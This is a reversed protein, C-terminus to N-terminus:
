VVGAVHSHDLVVLDADTRSGCGWGRRGLWTRWIVRYQHSSPSLILAGRYGTLALRAMFTGVGRGDNLPSEPGGGSFGIYGLSVGADPLDLLMECIDTHAPDVHWAYSRGSEVAMHADLVCHVLPLADGGANVISGALMIRQTISGHNVIVPSDFVLSLSALRAVDATFCVSRPADVETSGTMLGVVAVGARAAIDRVRVADAVSSAGHADGCRLEIAHMGRARCAAILVEASLDPAAASSLGLTM